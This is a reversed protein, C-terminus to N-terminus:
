KKENIIIIIITIIKKKKDVVIRANFRSTFSRDEHLYLDRSDTVSSNYHIRSIGYHMVVAVFRVCFIQRSDHLNFSTKEATVDKLARSFLYISTNHKSRQTSKLSRPCPRWAHRLLNQPSIYASVHSGPCKGEPCIGGSMDRGPCDGGAKKCPTPCKGRESGGDVNVIYFCRGNVHM